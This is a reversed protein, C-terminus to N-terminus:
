RAVEKNEFNKVTKDRDIHSLVVDYQYVIIEKKMQVLYHNASLPIDVGLTCREKPKRTFGNDITM